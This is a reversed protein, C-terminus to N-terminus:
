LVFKEIAQAVGDDKYNGTIYDAKAKLSESANGMAVGLGAFEIMSIDNEYDGMAIISEREIGYLKSLKELALGKSAEKNVIELYKPGSQDITAHNIDRLSNRIDRIDKEGSDDDNVVISKLIEVKEKKIVDEIKNVVVVNVKDEISLYKNYEDYRFAVNIIKETYISDYTFLQPFLGKEHSLRVLELTVDDPVTAKYLVKGKSEDKIFAGNCAIIPTQFNLQKAFHRASVYVRATALVIKIGKEMAKSLAEKNRKSIMKEENLLTFDMDLAILKYKNSNSKM